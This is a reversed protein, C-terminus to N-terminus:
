KATETKAGTSGTLRGPPDPTRPVVSAATALASGVSGGDGGSVPVAKPNRVEATGFPITVCKIWLIDSRHAAFHSLNNACVPSAGIPAYKYPIRHPHGACRRGHVVNNV